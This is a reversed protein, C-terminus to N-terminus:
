KAAARRGFLTALIPVIKALVPGVPSPVLWGIVACVAGVIIEVPAATTVDAVSAAEAGFAACAALTLAALIAPTKM